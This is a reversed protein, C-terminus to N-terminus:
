KAVRLRKLVSDPVCIRALEEMPEEALPGDAEWAADGVIQWGMGRVMEALYDIGPDDQTTEADVVWLRYNPLYRRRRNAKVWALAEDWQRGDCNKALFFITTVTM